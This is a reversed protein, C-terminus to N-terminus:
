YVYWQLIYARLYLLFLVASIVTLIRNVWRNGSVAGLALSVPYCALCYRPASLLWTAGMCVMYYVLFYATDSARLRKVGFCLIVPATLVALLNPLWLGFAMRRNGGEALANKLSTAETSASSFFWGLQQHWHAKQYTLFIWPNGTM